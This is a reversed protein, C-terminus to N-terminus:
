ALGTYMSVLIKFCRLCTHGAFFRLFFEDCQMLDTILKDCTSVFLMIFDHKAGDLWTLFLRVYFCFNNLNLHSIM